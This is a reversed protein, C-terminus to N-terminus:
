WRQPACASARQELLQALRKQFPLAVTDVNDLLISGGDGMKLYGPFGNPSSDGFLQLELTEVSHLSCDIRLFPKQAWAVAAISDKPSSRQVAAPKVAFSYLATMM